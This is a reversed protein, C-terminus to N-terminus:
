NNLLHTKINDINESGRIENWKESEYELLENIREDGIDFEDLLAEAFYLFFYIATGTERVFHLVVEAHYDQKKTMAQLDLLEGYLAVTWNLIDYMLDVLEGAVIDEKPIIKNYFSTLMRFSESDVAQNLSVAGFYAKTQEHLTVLHSALVDFVLEDKETPLKEFYMDLQELFAKFVSSTAKIKSYTDELETVRDFDDVNKEIYTNFSTTLKNEFEEISNSENWFNVADFTFTAIWSNRYEATGHLFLLETKIINFIRKEWFDKSRAYTLDM